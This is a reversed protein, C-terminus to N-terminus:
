VPLLVIFETFGGEQSDARISGQHAKIIDYSLSLGLGTGQGAPKTTFFPQFIKEKEKDPIGLGNDKVRLEINDGLKKTSVSVLPIFGSGTKRTKEAVSYFANNYLNLLVRSIDQPIINIKELSNDFHTELQAKFDKERGQIVHYSLRLYEDALKNIDTSEKQGSSARSHLLMSKVISDARKGHHHIKEMNQMLDKSIERIEPINGKEIELHMDGLLEKNVESFNNVFNLPNQIEHAIGATLEGLSAMKESQILQSQTTKLTDITDELMQTRHKVKVELKEKEFRLRRERFKSFIRLAWLFLLTYATYAWWTRWWPPLVEFSYAVPESWVGEPSQAKLLFTYKGEFINGYSASSEKGPHSWQKDYGELKYQYRVLFNKGTEIANFDFSINNNEHPLILGEPIPYWKTITKFSLNRFQTRMSDKESDSLLRGFTNIEESLNQSSTISEKKVSKGSPGLDSWSIIENNIKVSKIVVRPPNNNKSVATQPDFRVLGTKDSGTGIWTIGKKDIFMAGPGSNVDKVPYGTKTNFTNGAIWKNNAGKETKEAILECMGLNTGIYLKHDNVQVIQSIFNHPLGDKTSFTEFLSGYLFENRGTHESIQPLNKSQLLSLGNQTGFWLDGSKDQTIAWIANDALGQESTFSTFSKGDFKSVGGGLTGFWLNAENDELISFVVNNALGQATTYNTFSKGDFKSVGGGSTGFWLNGYKDEVIRFVTNNALGQVTTYNTFSKGDYKSVGHRNTGFWLNGKRDKTISYVENHALGQETTYNTFSKGDYKIAGGGNTGFWLNGTTDEIISYVVNNALGQSTTYNTISKGAFKSVGGGFTGFWMNGKADETISTVKNNALGQEITYDTFIKGDYMSAGKNTGFWLNGANDEAINWVFNDALGQTVSYNTFGRGDYKSVGGGNTGFWLNGSKDQLISRVMNNALGETVTYNSFVKGDYKSVGGGRTGIWLNGIRDEKIDFIYNNVLGQASNYNTFAKGDYKSIGGGNTGFWLNGTKDETISYVVNHALGQKTTYNTFSKGDYKSVGGGDTGVWLNGQRDQTICWILNYALGNATTYNTFSKGDYRSIGGGNTGFWLNGSKDKYSCYVEDLGIGEDTTYTTFLGKGQADPPTPLGTIQDILYHTVPPLLKTSVPGNARPEAHSNSSKGPVTFTFPQPVNELATQRPKNSDPLDALVTVQPYPISDRTITSIAEPKNNQTCGHIFLLVGTFLIFKRCFATSFATNLNDPNVNMSLLLLIYYEGLEFFFQLKFIKNINSLM